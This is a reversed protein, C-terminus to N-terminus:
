TDALLRRYEDLLWDDTRPPTASTLCENLYVPQLCPVRMRALERWLAPTLQRKDARAPEIFVHTVTGPQDHLQDLPVARGGGATVLRQFARCREGATLLVAVMAHFAGPIGEEKIKRRWRYAATSLKYETSDKSLGSAQLCDSNGWEFADEPLFQGARECADLYAPQLIWRGSAVAALHKESRNPRSTVLHTTAPELTATDLVIGGLREVAATYRTRDAPEMGSFVMTPRLPKRVAPAPPPPTNPPVNEQGQQGVTRRTSVRRRKGEPTEEMADVYRKWAKRTHSTPQAGSVVGGYPTGWRRAAAFKHGEASQCVLHTSARAHKTPNDRRAFVEQFEAGMSEGLLALYQRERGSYSSIGLVCGSLIDHRFTPIPRHYYEPELLQDTEVCHQLYAVTVLRDVDAAPAEHVLPVVTFRAADPAAVQRAGHEELLAAAEQASKADLEGSLFVALGGFLTQTAELTTDDGRGVTGDAALMTEQQPQLHPRWAASLASEPVAGGSVVVHTVSPLLQSFRMAGSTNLMRRLKDERRADFGMLHIKCGDLFQGAKLVEQLDIRDLKALDEDVAVAPPVTFAATENMTTENVPRVRSENAGMITSVTLDALEGYAMTHNKTPTSSLKAKVATTYEEMGLCWGREVSDYLWEPVVCPIQWRRAFTVKEGDMSPSVLVSTKECELQTMYSGGNNEIIKRIAEKDKRSLQSVCIFLGQFPPCTLDAFQPDTAQVTQRCSAEWVRDVWAARMVPVERTVAVQYKPSAVVGAVLHTVGEHFDSSYVGSMLKVLRQLRTKELKQFGTSTIVMGRMAAAYLPYPLEPVPESRSLCALLCPPGLVRVCKFKGSSLYEFAVGEFPDCIFVDQKVPHKQLVDEEKIWNCPFGIDLCAQYCSGLKESCTTESTNKPLVFYLNVQDQSDQSLLSEMEMWFMM